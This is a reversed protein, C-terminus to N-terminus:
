PEHLTAILVLWREIPARRSETPIAAIARAAAAQPEPCDPCEPECAAGAGDCLGFALANCSLM